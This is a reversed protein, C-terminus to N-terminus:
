SHVALDPRDRWVGGSCYHTQVPLFSSINQRRQLEPRAIARQWDNRVRTGLSTSMKLWQPKRSRIAQSRPKMRRRSWLAAFFELKTTRTSRSTSDTSRESGWSCCTIMSLSRPFTWRQRQMKLHIAYLTATESFAMTYSEGFASKKFLKKSRASRQASLNEDPWCWAM